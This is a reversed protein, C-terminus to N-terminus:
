WAVRLRVYSESLLLYQDLLHAASLLFVALALLVVLRSLLQARDSAAAVVCSVRSAPRGTM